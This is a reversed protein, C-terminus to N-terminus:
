RKYINTLSQALRYDYFRNFGQEFNANALPLDFPNGADGRHPQRWACDTQQSFEAACSTPGSHLPECLSAAAVFPAEGGEEGLYRDLLSEDEDAQWGADRCSDPSDFRQCCMIVCHTGGVEVPHQRRTVLRCGYAALISVAGGPPQDGAAHRRHLIRLLVAAHHGPQRVHRCGPNPNQTWAAHDM